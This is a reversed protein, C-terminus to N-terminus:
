SGAESEGMLCAKVIDTQLTLQDLGLECSARHTSGAGSGLRVPVMQKKVPTRVGTAAEFAQDLLERKWAKDRLAPANAVRLLLYAFVGASRVARSGCNRLTRINWGGASKHKRRLKLFFHFAWCCCSRSVRRVSPM